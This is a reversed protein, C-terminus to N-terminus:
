GTYTFEDSGAGPTLYGNTLVRVNVTSPATPSPDKLPARVTIATATASLVTAPKNGFYVQPNDAFGQGNVTVKTEVTGSEPSIDLVLAPQPGGYAFQNFPSAPSTGLITTVQVDVVGVGEPAYCTIQTGDANVTFKDCPVTGFDVVTEMLQPDTGFGSGHITLETGTPGFAPSFSTVVPGPSVVPAGLQALYLANSHQFGVQAMFDQVSSRTAYPDYSGPQGYDPNLVFPIGPQAYTNPGPLSGITSLLAKVDFDAAPGPEPYWGKAAALDAWARPILDYANYCHENAVWRLSDVFDAFDQNGATPAAFTSLAFKPAGSPWQVTQLYPAVMTALCGGLSHGTVYVTPNPPAKRLATDLAQVLNAGNSSVTVVQTFAAMAGRSVSVPKPSGGATFPVVTGVSLDELMDTANGAVTGRVAVAFENAGQINQALYVLNANDPSLGLWLLEWDGGTALSTDALHTTIGLTVRAAQAALSEGSPRPTAATAAIAALTMTVKRTAPDLPQVAM